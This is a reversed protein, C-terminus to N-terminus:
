LTNICSNGIKKDSLVWRDDKTSPGFSATTACPLFVKRFWGRWRRIGWGCSSWGLKVSIRLSQSTSYIKERQLANTFTSYLYSGNHFALIIPRRRCRRCDLNVTNFLCVVIAFICCCRNLFRVMGMTLANRKFAFLVLVMTLLLFLQGGGVVVLVRSFCYLLVGSAEVSM